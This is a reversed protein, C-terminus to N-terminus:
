RIFGIDLEDACKQTVDIDASMYILRLLQVSQLWRLCSVTLQHKTMTTRMELIGTMTASAITIRMVQILGIVRPIRTM